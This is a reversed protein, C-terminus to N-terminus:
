TLGLREADASKAFRQRLEDMAKLYTAPNSRSSRGLPSQDVLVIDAFADLGAVSGCAGVSDVAQGRARMANGYLVDVVLSSKGSGSVGTVVSFRGIPLAVDIGGLNNARAGAIRLWAPEERRREAPSLPVHARERARRFQATVGARDRVLE